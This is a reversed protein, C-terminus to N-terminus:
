YKKINSKGKHARLYRELFSLKSEDVTEFRRQEEVLYEFTTKEIHEALGDKLLWACFQDEVSEDDTLHLDNLKFTLQSNVRQIADNKLEADIVGEPHEKQFRVIGREALEISKAGVLRATEEVM